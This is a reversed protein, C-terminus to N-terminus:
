AVVPMDVVATAGAATGSARSLIAWGTGTWLFMVTDGILTCTVKTYSGDTTAPTVKWSNATAVTHFIKMQGTSSGDALTVAMDAEDATVLSLPVTVSAAGATTIAENAMVLSSLTTTGTLTATTSVTLGTGAEQVLGKAASITVQPM